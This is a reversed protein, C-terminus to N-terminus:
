SLVVHSQTSIVLCTNGLVNTGFQLDYGDATLQEVPPHMVGANNFLVHLETEKSFCFSLSHVQAPTPSNLWRLFEEAAAKVAKLDSLDLKLFIADKATAEGLEKIVGEAKERSRAALYM